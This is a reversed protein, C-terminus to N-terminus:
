PRKRNTRAAKARSLLDACRTTTGARSDLLRGCGM